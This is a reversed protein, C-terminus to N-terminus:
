SFIKHARNKCRRMDLFVSFGTLSPQRRHRTTVTGLGAAFDTFQTCPQLAEGEGQVMYKTIYGGEEQALVESSGSIRGGPSCAPPLVLPTLPGGPLVAVGLPLGTLGSPVCPPFVSPPGGAWPRRLPTLGPLGSREMRGYFHTKQLDEEKKNSLSNIANKTTCHDGCGLKIPNGDCLGLADGRWSDGKSVM